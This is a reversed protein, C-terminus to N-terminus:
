WTFRFWLRCYVLVIAGSHAM